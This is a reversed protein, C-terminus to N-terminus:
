DSSSDDDDSVDEEEKAEASTSSIVLRVKTHTAASKPSECRHVALTSGDTSSEAACSQNERTCNETYEFCAMWCEFTNETVPHHSCVCNAQCFAENNFNLDMNHTNCWFACKAQTTKSTIPRCVRYNCVPYRTLRRHQGSCAASAFHVPFEQKAEVYSSLQRQYDAFRMGTNRMKATPSLLVMKGFWARVVPADGHCTQPMLMGHVVAPISVPLHVWSSFGDGVMVTLEDPNQVPRAITGDGLKFLLGSAPDPNAIEQLTANADGNDRAEFFAPPTMAIFLGSDSHMSLAFRGDHDGEQKEVSGRMEPSAAEERKAPVYAHFHDMHQAESVIEYLSSNQTTAGSSFSGDFAASFQLVAREVVDSFAHKKLQYEPCHAGDLGDDGNTSGITFRETGDDLVRYLIGHADLARHRWACEAATYLYAKRLASYNPVNKITVIGYAQLKRVIAADFQMAHYELSPVTVDEYATVVGIALSLFCGIARAFDVAKM